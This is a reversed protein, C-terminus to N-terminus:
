CVSVAVVVIVILVVWCVVGTKVGGPVHDWSNTKLFDFIPNNRPKKKM